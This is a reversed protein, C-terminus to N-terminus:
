QEQYLDYKDIYEEVAKPIYKKVSNSNKINERIHKSSVDIDPMKIREINTNYTHNLYEIQQNMAENSLGYRSAVIFKALKMIEEPKKWTEIQFLSDAGIIFYFSISGKTKWLSELTDVTYTTGERELEVTSLTFYPIDSIALSIMKLRHDDSVINKHEKHPPNKSPMFLIEELHFQKYASNALVLHGNHIPNFTGGMIGIKKLRDM